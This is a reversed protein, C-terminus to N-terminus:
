TDLRVPVFSSISNTTYDPLTFMLFQRTKRLLSLWWCASQTPIWLLIQWNSVEMRESFINLKWGSLWTSSCSWFTLSFRLCRSYTHLFVLSLSLVACFIVHKLRSDINCRPASWIWHLRCCDVVREVVKARCKFCKKTNKQSYFHKFM